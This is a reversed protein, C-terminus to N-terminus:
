VGFIRAAMMDATHAFLVNHFQTVAQGYSNWNEKSDFAGMHWRICMIEEDTLFMMKQLIIVSKEGHGPLIAANNYQWHEPDTGEPMLKYNDCKCLDHFMGIIYPSREKEWKLECRKTLDLLCQTVCFSHDFLGGSRNGHHSISAPAEFFNLTNLHLIMKEIDVSNFVEGMLKKFQEIREIKTFSMEFVGKKKIM